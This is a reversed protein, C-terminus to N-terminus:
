RMRPRRRNRTRGPRTSESRHTSSGPEHAQRRVQVRVTGGFSRRPDAGRRGKPLAAYGSSRGTGDIYQNAKRSKQADTGSGTVDPADLYVFHVHPGKANGTMGNRGIPQGTVVPGCTVVVSDLHCYRFTV